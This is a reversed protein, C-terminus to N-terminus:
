GYWAHPNSKAGNKNRYHHLAHYHMYASHIFWKSRKNCWWLRLVYRAANVNRGYSLYIVQEPPVGQGQRKPVIGVSGDQREQVDANYDPSQEEYVGDNYKLQAVLRFTRGEDFATPVSDAKAWGSLTFSTEAPLRLRITQLSFSLGATSGAVRMVNGRAADTVYSGGNSTGWCYQANM